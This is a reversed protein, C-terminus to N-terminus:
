QVTVLMKGTNGGNLMDLFAQPANELGNVITEEYKVKGEKIWGSLDKIGEAFRPMYDTVLLGQVKARKVILMSLMRPGMEPKELNYQSIQGCIAIRAHVNMHIMVADTIVGGVNDFYCDIGSPCLERLKALNNAERKYNYAADFGLEDVLWKVKEDTGAIGVARCGKIKAIQGVVSGVAGAAGSVVVTEGAKPACVDLLGFYATLGPMGAAGLYVQVPGLAPDVKMLLKAPAVAYRQWGTFGSIVDGVKLKESKSEVVRCITGGVMVEGLKVPEAYSKADSMRGRMYPDVSLWMTELLVEGETPQPIPTEAAKFDSLKPFGVPRAALQIQLNTAHM